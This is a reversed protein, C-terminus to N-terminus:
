REKKMLCEYAETAEKFAEEDGGDTDPHVEKVRRRYARTIEHDPANPHIELIRGAQKRSLDSDTRLPGRSSRRGSETKASTDNQESQSKRSFRRKTTGRIRGISVGRGTATAWIGYTAVGLPVALVLLFIDYHVGLGIILITTGTLVAALWHRFPSQTM